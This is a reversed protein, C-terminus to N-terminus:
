ICIYMCVYIYIYYIYIYTFTTHTCLIGLHHNIANNEEWWVNCIYIYLFLYCRRTWAQQEPLVLSYWCDVMEKGNETPMLSVSVHYSDKTCATFSQTWELQSLFLFSSVFYFLRGLLFLHHHHHHHHHSEVTQTTLQFFSSITLMNLMRATAVTLAM